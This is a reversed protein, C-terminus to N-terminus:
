QLGAAVGIGRERELAELRTELDVLETIKCHLEIVKALQAAEEPTIEGTATGAVLLRSATL